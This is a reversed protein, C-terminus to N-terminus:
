TDHRAFLRHVLARIWQNGPERHVRDHWYQAIELDPLALPPTVVALDLNGCIARALTLPLIAVTDSHQAILAATAFSPVRCVINNHPVAAEIAREANLHGHGTGATSVLVHKEAVFTDPEGLQALRPHDKRVVASYTEHWLLQRRMGQMLGPFAGIALDVTGNELWTDLHAADANIAQVLIGPAEEALRSLLLPLMQSAGVDLMFFRFSRQSTRPDFSIRDSRLARVSQLIARVPEGLELAKPTPEMRLGVRVFLPDDFYQRLRALTKSLAPQTLDLVRAARTLSRESLLVDLVLLQNLNLEDEHRRPLTDM